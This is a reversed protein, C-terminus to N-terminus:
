KNESMGNDITLSYKPTHVLLTHSRVNGSIARNTSVTPHHVSESEQRLNKDRTLTLM